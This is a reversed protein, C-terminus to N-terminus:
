YSNVSNGETFFCFLNIYNTIILILIEKNNQMEVFINQYKLLEDTILSKFLSLTQKTLIAYSDITTNSRSFIPFNAGILSIISSIYVNNNFNTEKKGFQKGSVCRRM